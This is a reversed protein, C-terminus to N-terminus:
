STCFATRGEFQTNRAQQATWVDFLAQHPAAVIFTLSLMVGLGALMMSGAAFERGSPRSRWYCFVAVAIFAPLFTLRAASALLLVAPAAVLGAAGRRYTLLLAFALLTLPIVIAEARPTVMGLVVSPTCVLILTALVATARSRLREGIYLVLAASALALVVGFMRAGILSSGFVAAGAGFVYPLLPAQFYPFDRYPLEGQLALRGSLLYWGEDRNLYAFFVFFMSEAMLMALTAVLAADLAHARIRSVQERSALRLDVVAL